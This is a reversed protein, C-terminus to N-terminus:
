RCRGTPALSEQRSPRGHHEIAAVERRLLRRAWPNRLWGATLAQFQRFERPLWISLARRGVSERDYRALGSGDLTVLGTAGKAVGQSKLCFAHVRVMAKTHLSGTRMQLAPQAVRPHIWAPKKPGFFEGSAPGPLTFSPM